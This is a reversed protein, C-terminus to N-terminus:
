LKASAPTVKVVPVSCYTVYPAAGHYAPTQDARQAGPNAPPLVSMHFILATATTAKARSWPAARADPPDGIGTGLDGPMAGEAGLNVGSCSAACLYLSPRLCLSFASASALSASASVDLAFFRALSSAEARLSYSFAIFSNRAAVSLFGAINWAWPPRPYTYRLVPSKAAASLAYSRARSSSGLYVGAM